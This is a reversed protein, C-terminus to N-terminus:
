EDQRSSRSPSFRQVRESSYLGIPTLLAGIAFVAVITNRKWYKSQHWWGGAPTWVNQPYPYRPVGGM